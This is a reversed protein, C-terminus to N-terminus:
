LVLHKTNFHSVLTPKGGAVKKASTSKESIEFAEYLYGLTKLFLVASVTESLGTSVRAKRRILFTGITLVGVVTVFIIERLYM